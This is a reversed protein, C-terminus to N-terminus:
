YISIMIRALRLTWCCCTTACCLSVHQQMYGELMCCAANCYQHLCCQMHIFCMVVAKVQMINVLRMDTLDLGIGLMSHMSIQAQLHAISSPVM